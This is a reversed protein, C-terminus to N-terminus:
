RERGSPYGRRARPFTVSRNRVMNVAHLEKPYHGTAMWRFFRWRWYSLSGDWSPSTWRMGEHEMYAPYFGCDQWDIIWLQNDGDIIMNHPNLDMHCFVHTDRPMIALEPYALFCPPRSLNTWWNIYEAFDKPSVHLAPGYKDEDFAGCLSAGTSLSGGVSSTICRMLRVFRALQFAVCLTRWLSLTPWVDALVSGHVRTM